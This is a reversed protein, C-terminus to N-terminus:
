HEDAVSPQESQYLIVRVTQITVLCGELLERLEVLLPGIRERRDIIEVVIPADSSLRDTPLDAERSAAGFGVLGRMVTVGALGRQRAEEAIVQYLPRDGLVDSEGIYVRIAEAQWPLTPM